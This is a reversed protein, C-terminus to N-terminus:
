GGCGHWRIRPRAHTEAQADHSILAGLALAALGSTKFFQRRTFPM